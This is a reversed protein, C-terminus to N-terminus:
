SLTRGIPWRRGDCRPRKVAGSSGPAQHAEVRYAEDAEEHNRDDHHQGDAGVDEAEGVGILPSKRTRSWPGPRSWQNPVSSRPLSWHDLITCPARIETNTPKADTPNPDSIPSAKPMEAPYMPPRSSLTLWRSTSIMSERGSRSMARTNTAVNPLPGSLTTRAKAMMKMGLVTRTTRPVTREALSFMYTSAARARPAECSRIMTRWM